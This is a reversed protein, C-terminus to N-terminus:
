AVRVFVGVDQAHCTVQVSWAFRCMHRLVTRHLGPCRCRANQECASRCGVETSGVIKAKRWIVHGFRRYRDAGPTRRILDHAHRVECYSDRAILSWIHKPSDTPKTYMDSGVTENMTCGKQVAHWTCMDGKCGSTLCSSCASLRDCTAICRELSGMESHLTVRNCTAHNCTRMNVHEHPGGRRRLSGMESRLTVRNRAAHECTRMNSLGAESRLPTSKRLMFPMCRMLCLPPGPAGVRSLENCAALPSDGAVESPRCM